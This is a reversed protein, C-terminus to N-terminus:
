HLHAFLPGSPAGNQLRHGVAWGEVIGKVKTFALDLVQTGTNPTGTQAIEWDNSGQQWALYFSVQNAADQRILSYFIDLQGTAWASGGIGSGNAVVGAELAGPPPNSQLPFGTNAFPPAAPFWLLHAAPVETGASLSSIAILSDDYGRRLSAGIVHSDHALQEYNRVNDGPHAAPYAWGGAYLGAYSDGTCDSASCDNYGSVWLILHDTNAVHGTFIRNGESPLFPCTNHPLSATSNGFWPDESSNPLDLPSSYNDGKSNSGSGCGNGRVTYVVSKWVPSSCDDETCTLTVFPNVTVPLRTDGRQILTRWTNADLASAYGSYPPGVNSAASCSTSNSLCHLILIPRNGNTDAAGTVGALVFGEAATTVDTIVGDADNFGNLAIQWKGSAISRYAAIPISSNGRILRGGVVIDNSAAAGVAWLELNAGGFLASLEAQEDVWAHVNVTVEDKATPDAASSVRVVTPMPQAAAPFPMPTPTVVADAGGNQAISASPPGSIAFDVGPDDFDLLNIVTAHLSTSKPPAGLALLDVTKPLVSISIQPSTTIAITNTSGDDVSTVTITDSGIIAPFYTATCTSSEAAPASCSLPRLTGSTASFTALGSASAPLGALIATIDISQNVHLRGQHPATASITITSPPTGLDPSSGV